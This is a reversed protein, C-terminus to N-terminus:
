LTGNVPPKRANGTVSIWHILTVCLLRPQQTLTSGAMTKAVESANGLRNLGTVEEDTLNVFPPELLSFMKRTGEVTGWTTRAVYKNDSLWRNVRERGDLKAIVM